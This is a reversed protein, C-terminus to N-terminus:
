YRCIQWLSLRTHVNSRATLLRMTQDTEVNELFPCPNVPSVCAFYDNSTKSSEVVKKHDYGAELMGLTESFTVKGM